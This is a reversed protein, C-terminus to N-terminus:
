AEKKRNYLVFLMIASVVTILGIMTYLITGIGGTLPLTGTEFAAIEALYYGETTAAVSDAIKVKVPVTDRPLSYGPATSVQKLYYTGEALGAYRAVGNSDTTMEGLKTTAAAEKYIEFKVGSLKIGNDKNSYVLAEIGYTFAAANVATTSTTGTGYPDNSYTLVASNMNGATDGLTANSNLKAKYEITVTTSTIYDATFEITLKQGSITATAVTNAGNKFTGNTNSLTKEGDKIVISSLASLTIGNGVTDVITYKKNTANTPFQPVTGVLFYSYETGISYNGDVRGITGIAKTLGAQSVKAKITANSITWDNGSATPIVNGVMVAYVNLTTKPIILYAGVPVTATATTSSTTMNTGTISANAKLYATYASVLKDLTSQTRTSGSTQDGSTLAYYDEITLNKYTSSSALFAKFDSTFEYTFVNTSANYFTNLVRYAVLVDGTKVNSVTITGTNTVLLSNSDSTAHNSNDTSITVANVNLVMGFTFITILLGFIKKKM